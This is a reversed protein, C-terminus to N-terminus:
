RPKKREALQRQPGLLHANLKEREPVCRPNACSCTPVVTMGDKQLDQLRARLVYRNKKCFTRSCSSKYARRRADTEHLPYPHFHRRNSKLRPPHRHFSWEPVRTPIEQSSLHLPHAVLTHHALPHQQKHRDWSRRTRLINDLINFPPYTHVLYISPFFRHRYQRSPFITPFRLRYTQIFCTEFTLIFFLDLFSYYPMYFSYIRM